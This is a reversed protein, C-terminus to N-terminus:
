NVRYNHGRSQIDVTQYNTLITFILISFLMSFILISSILIVFTNILFTEDTLFFFASERFMWSIFALFRFSFEFIAKRILRIFSNILINSFVFFEIRVILIVFVRIRIELIFHLRQHNIKWWEWREFSIRINLCEYDVKFWHFIEFQHNSIENISWETMIKDIKM